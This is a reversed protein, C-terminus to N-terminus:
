VSGFLSKSNIILANILSYNIVVPGNGLVVLTKLKEQMTCATEMSVEVAARPTPTSKLDSQSSSHLLPVLLCFSLKSVVNFKSNFNFVLLHLNKTVSRKLSKLFWTSFFCHSMLSESSSIYRSTWRCLLHLPWGEQLGKFTRSHLVMKTQRLAWLYGTFGQLVM